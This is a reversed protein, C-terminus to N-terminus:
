LSCDVTELRVNPNDTIMYIESGAEFLRLRVKIKPSFTEFTSFFDVGPKGYMVSGDPTCIFKVRRTLFPESLSADIIEDHFGEFDFKECNLMGRCESIPIKFNNCNYSKRACLINSNSIHQNNIYVEVISFFNSNM